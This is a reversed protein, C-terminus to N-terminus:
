PWALAVSRAPSRCALSAPHVYLRRQDGSVDYADDPDITLVTEVVQVENRLGKVFGPRLPRDILRAALIAETGAAAKAASSPVPSAVRPTSVSKM